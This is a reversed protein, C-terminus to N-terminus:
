RPPGTPSPMPLVPPQWDAKPYANVGYDLQYGPGEPGGCLHVVYGGGDGADRNFQAQRECTRRIWKETSEVASFGAGTLLQEAQPFSDANVGTVTLNWVKGGSSGPIDIAKAAISGPVVPVDAPFGDPLATAAARPPGATQPTEPTPPASTDHHNGCGAVAVVLVCVALRRPTM